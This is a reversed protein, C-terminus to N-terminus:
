IEWMILARDNGKPFHEVVHYSDIDPIEVGLIILRFKRWDETAEGNISSKQFFTYFTSCYMMLQKPDFVVKEGLPQLVPLTKPCASLCSIPLFLRSIPPCEKHPASGSTYLLGPMTHSLASKCISFNKLYEIM